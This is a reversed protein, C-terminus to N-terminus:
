IEVTPQQSIIIESWWVVTLNRSEHATFDLPLNLRKRPSFTWGFTCWKTQQVGLPISLTFLSEM